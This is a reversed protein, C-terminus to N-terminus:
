WSSPKRPVLSGTGVTSDSEQEKRVPTSDQPTTAWGDVEDRGDMWKM